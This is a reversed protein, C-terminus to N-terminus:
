KCHIWESLATTSNHFKWASQLFHIEFIKLNSSWANCAWSCQKKPDKTPKAILSSVLYVKNYNLILPCVSQKYNLFLIQVDESFALGLLWAKQKLWDCKWPSRDRFTQGSVIWRKPNLTGLPSTNLSVLIHSPSTCIELNSTHELVCLVRRKFM